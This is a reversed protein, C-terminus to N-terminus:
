VILGDWNFAPDGYAIWPFLGAGAGIILGAALPWSRRAVLATAGGVLAALTGVLPIGGRYGDCAEIWKEPPNEVKPGCGYEFAAHTLLDGVAVLAIALVLWLVAPFRRVAQAGIALALLTPVVLVAVLSSEVCAASAKVAPRSV